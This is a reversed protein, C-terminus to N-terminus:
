RLCDFYRTMSISILFLACRDERSEFDIVKEFHWRIKIRKIRDLGDDVKM